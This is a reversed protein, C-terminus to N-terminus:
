AARKVGMARQLRRRDKARLLVEDLRSEVFDKSPHFEQSGVLRLMGGLLRRVVDRLEPEREVAQIHKTRLPDGHVLRSRTDYFARVARFLSLRQAENTGLMGSVRSALVFSLESGGGVLAELAVVDDVLRDAGGVSARDFAASFRQLAVHIRALGSVHSGEFEALRRYADRALRAGSPTLDYERGRGGPWPAGQSHIGGLDFMYATPRAFFIRGLGVEGQGVLRLALLMRWMRQVQDLGNDALLNDPTKPEVVTATLVYESPPGDRWDEGLTADLRARDWGLERGLEKFSRSRLVLGRGLDFTEREMTFAKMNAVATFRWEPRAIERWYSAWASKAAKGAFGHLGYLWYLALRKADASGYLEAVLKNAALEDVFQAFTPLRVRLGDAELDFYPIGRQILGASMAESAVGLALKRVIIQDDVLRDHAISRSPGLLEQRLGDLLTGRTSV